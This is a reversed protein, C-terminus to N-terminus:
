LMLSALALYFIVGAVIALGIFMITNFISVSPQELETLKNSDISVSHISNSVPENLQVKKNIDITTKNM